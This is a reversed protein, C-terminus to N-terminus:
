ILTPYIVLDNWTWQEQTLEARQAATNKHRSHVWIWPQADSLHPISLWTM